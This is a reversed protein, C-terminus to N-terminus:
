RHAFFVLKEKAVDMFCMVIHGIIKMLRMGIGRCQTREVGALNSGGRLETHARDKCTWGKVGKREGEDGGMKGLSKQWDSELEAKIIASWFTFEFM